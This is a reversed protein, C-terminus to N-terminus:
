SGSISKMIFRHMFGLFVAIILFFIATQIEGWM